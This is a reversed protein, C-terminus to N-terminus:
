GGSRGREGTTTETATRIATRLDKILLTLHLPDTESPEFAPSIRRYFAAVDGAEAHILLARVGVREAISSVQLFGDRVLNSGLGMGQQGVDVGLRTLIVVPVPHRGLGSTVRPPAEERSISGAALAYYGVVTQTDALRVVYVRSSGSRQAQLGHRRLWDTQAVSGCDFGSVDHDASLLEPRTYRSM